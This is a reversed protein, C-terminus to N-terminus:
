PAKYYRIYPQFIMDEFKISLITMGLFVISSSVLYPFCDTGGVCQDGAVSYEHINM